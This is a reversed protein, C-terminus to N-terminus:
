HRRSAAERTRSGSRSPHLSESVTRLRWSCSLRLRMPINPRCRRIPGSSRQAFSPGPAPSSLSITGIVRNSGTGKGRRAPCSRTPASPGPDPAATTRRWKWSGRSKRPDQPRSWSAARGPSRGTGELNDAVSVFWPQGRAPLEGELPTIELYGGPQVEGYYIIPDLSDNLDDDIFVYGDVGEVWTRSYVRFTGEEVVQGPAIGDIDPQRHYGDGRIAAIGSHDRAVPRRTDRRPMFPTNAPSSARGQRPSSSIM